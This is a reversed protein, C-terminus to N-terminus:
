IHKKLQTIHTKQEKIYEKLMKISKKATPSNGFSKLRIINNEAILIYKKAKDIESTVNHYLAYSSKAVGSVVKINVNHSKTDKHISEPKKVGAVRRTHAKVKGYKTHKKRAAKKPAAKKVVKKAAKKPATKKNLKNVEKSVMRVWKKLKEKLKQMEIATSAFPTYYKIYETIDYATADLESASLNPIIKIIPKNNTEDMLQFYIENGVKIQKIGIDIGWIKGKFNLISGITPLLIIKKGAAKKPAAKKAAKKKPAAGVKKGYVHAFAEKLSVGTKKRYEIAKKFNAKATKQAVTM